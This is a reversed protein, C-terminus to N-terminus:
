PIQQELDQLSSVLRLRQVHLPVAQMDDHVLESLDPGEQSRMRQEGRMRLAWEGIVAPPPLIGLIPSDEAATPGPSLWASGGVWQGSRVGDTSGEWGECSDLEM